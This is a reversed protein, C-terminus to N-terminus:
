ARKWPRRVVVQSRRTLELCRGRGSEYVPDRRQQDPAADKRTSRLTALATSGLTTALEGFTSVLGEAFGEDELRQGVTDTAHLPDGDVTEDLGALYGNARRFTFGMVGAVRPVLTAIPGATSLFVPAGILNRLYQNRRGRRMNAALSPPCALPNSTGSSGKDLSPLRRREKGLTRGGPRRDGQPRAARVTRPSM